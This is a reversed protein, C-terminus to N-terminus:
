LMYEVGEKGNYHLAFAVPRGLFVVSAGLALAKLVDIGRRVGGDLFIEVTPSAKKAAESIGKLLSITSPLTDLSRGGSNSVWLADAGSHVVTAADDACLVGQVVVPKKTADKM